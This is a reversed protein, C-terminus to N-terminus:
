YVQLQSPVAGPDMNNDCSYLKPLAADRACRSCENSSELSRGPLLEQCSSCVLVELNALKTHYQEMKRLVAPQDYLPLTADISRGRQHSQANRQLRHQREEETESSLRQQYSHSLLALRAARQEETESSLRRQQCDSLQALRAARQEETESSLRRQQCDSLQALRAAKQEESESM